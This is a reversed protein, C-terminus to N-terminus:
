TISSSQNPVIVNNTLPTNASAKKIQTEDINKQLTEMQDQLSEMQDHLTKVHNLMNSSQKVNLQFITDQFGHFKETIEADRTQL